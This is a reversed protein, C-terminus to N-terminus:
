TDNRYRCGSMMYQLIHGQEGKHVGQISYWAKSAAASM